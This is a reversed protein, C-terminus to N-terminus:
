QTVFCVNERDRLCLQSPNRAPINVVVPTTIVLGGEGVNAAIVALHLGSAGSNVGVAHRAGVCSSLAQEFVEMQPGISLYRIQLVQNVAAAM